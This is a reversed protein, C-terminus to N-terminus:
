NVLLVRSIVFLKLLVDMLKAGDSKHLSNAAMVPNTICYYIPTFVLVIYLYTGIDRGSLSM